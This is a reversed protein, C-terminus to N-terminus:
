IDAAEGPKLIIVEAANGVLTKFNEPDQQIIPFTNFHMPIVKRAGLLSVARAASCPGMTYRDGIPLLALDIDFFDSFLKMDGFIGTDGAHYITHGDMELIFGTQ